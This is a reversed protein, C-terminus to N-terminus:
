FLGRNKSLVKILIQVIAEVEEMTETGVSFRVFPVTDKDAYRATLYIRSTDLGFSTGSVLNINNNKAETLVEQVIKQYTKVNQYGRKFAFAFFSGHFKLDQIWQYSPHTKLGPYVIHSFTRNPHEQLYQNLKEAIFTANRHLRGMRKELLKKNPTPLTCTSTDSLITGLHVRTTLFNLLELIPCWIIGGTVRDMGFQYYKNLSEIIFIRPHKFFPIHKFTQFSIGLGTNDLVIVSSRPLIRSSEKLLKKLEPIQINQTNSLSDIFVIEPKLEKMLNLTEETKFEDFVTIQGPFTRNIIWRNEFYISQGVFISGKYTKQMLLYDLVTTFASMGSSTLFGRSGFHMGFDMYEKYMHAEYRSADRHLDRKYDNEQGIIKGTDKGALSQTTHEFTPSQWDGTTLLCGVESHLIRLLHKIEAKKEIGNKIEIKSFQLIKEDTPINSLIQQCHRELEKTKQSLYTHSSPHYAHSNSVLFDKFDGIKKQLSETLTRLEFYDEQLDQITQNM